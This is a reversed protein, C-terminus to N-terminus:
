SVGEEFDPRPIGLGDDVYRVLRMGGQKWRWGVPARSGVMGALFAWRTPALWFVIGGLEANKSNPRGVRLGPESVRVWGEVDFAGAVMRGEIAVLHSGLGYRELAEDSVGGWPDSLRRHPVARGSRVRPM